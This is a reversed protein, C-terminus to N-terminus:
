QNLLEISNFAILELKAQDPNVRHQEKGYALAYKAFRNFIAKNSKASRGKRSFRWVLSSSSLCQLFPNSLDRLVDKKEQDIGSQYKEIILMHLMHLTAADFLVATGIVGLFAALAIHENISYLVNGIHNIPLIESTPGYTSLTAAFNNVSHLLIGLLM